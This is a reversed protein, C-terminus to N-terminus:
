LATSLASGIPIAEVALDVHPGAAHRPTALRQLGGSRRRPIVVFENAASSSVRCSQLLAAGPGTVLVAVSRFSQRLAVDRRWVLAAEPSATM